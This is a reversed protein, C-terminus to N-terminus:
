GEGFILMDKLSERVPLNQSALLNGRATKAEDCVSLLICDIVVMVM